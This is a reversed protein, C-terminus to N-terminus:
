KNSLRSISGRWTLKGARQWKRQPVFLSLIIIVERNCLFLCFYEAPYVKNTRCINQYNEFLDLRGCSKNIPRGDFLYYCKPTSGRIFQGHANKMGLQYMLAFQLFLTIRGRHKASWITRWRSFNCINSMSDKKDRRSSFCPQIWCRYYYSYTWYRTRTWGSNQAIKRTATNRGLVVSAYDM